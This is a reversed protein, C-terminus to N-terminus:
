LGHRIHNIEQSLFYDLVTRIVVVMGVKGLLEVSYMHVPQALTDIIDASVMIQPGRSHGLSRAFSRALSWTLTVCAVRECRLTRVEAGGCTTVRREEECVHDDGVRVQLCWCILEGTQLRIRNLTLAERGSSSPILLKAPRGLLNAVFLRASEIFALMTGAALLLGGVTNIFSAANDLM